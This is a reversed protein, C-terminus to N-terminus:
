QAASLSPCGSREDRMSRYRRLDALEFFRAYDFGDSYRRHSRRQAAEPQASPCAKPQRRPAPRFSRRQCQSVTQLDQGRLWFGVRKWVSVSRGGPRRKRKWRGHFCQPLLLPRLGEYQKTIRHRRHGNRGTAYSRYRGISVPRSGAAAPSPMILRPDLRSDDTAKNIRNPIVSPTDSLSAPHRLGLMTM